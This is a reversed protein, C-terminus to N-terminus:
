RLQTDRRLKGVRPPLGDGLTLPDGHASLVHADPSTTHIFWNVAPKPVADNAGITRGRV